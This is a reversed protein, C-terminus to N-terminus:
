GPGAERCVAGGGDEGLVEVRHDSHRQHDPQREDEGVEEDVHAVAQEIRADALMASHVAAGVRAGAAGPSILAPTPDLAARAVVPGRPRHRRRSRRLGREVTPATTTRARTRQATAGAARAGIGPSAPGLTWKSRVNRGGPRSWQNPVSSTPRSMRLRDMKAA